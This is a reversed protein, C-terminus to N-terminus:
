QRRSRDLQCSWWSRDKMDSSRNDWHRHASRFRRKNRRSRARTECLRSRNPLLVHVLVHFSIERSIRRAPSQAPGVRIDIMPADGVEHGIESTLALRKRSTAVTLCKQRTIDDRPVEAKATFVDAHDHIDPLFGRLTIQDHM